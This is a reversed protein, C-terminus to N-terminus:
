ANRRVREPRNRGSQARILLTFPNVTDSEAHMARNRGCKDCKEANPDAASFAHEELPFELMNSGALPHVDHRLISANPM